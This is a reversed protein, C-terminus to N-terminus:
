EVIRPSPDGQAIGIKVSAGLNRRKIAFRNSGMQINRWSRGQELERAREVDVAVGAQALSDLKDVADNVEDESSFGGTPVERELRAVDDALASAVEGFGAQFAGLELYQVYVRDQMKWSRNFYTWAQDLQKCLM